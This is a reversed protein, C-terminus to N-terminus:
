TLPKEYAVLLGCLRSGTSINNLSKEVGDPYEVQISGHRLEYVATFRDSVGARSGIFSSRFSSSRAAYNFSRNREGLM